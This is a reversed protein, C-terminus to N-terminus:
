PEARIHGQEEATAQFNTNCDVMKWGDVMSWGNTPNDFGYVYPLPVVSTFNVPAWNSSGSDYNAKVQFNYETNPTLGSLDAYLKTTHFEDSWSGESAKKYQYSYDTIAEVMDPAVWTLTAKQEVQKSVSINSPTPYHCAKFNFDKVRLTTWSFLVKIAIYKVGGPFDKQYQEWYTRPYRSVSITDDEWNFANIDNTTYSYGVVFKGTYTYEQLTPYSAVNLNYLFSCSIADHGDFEPSILYQPNNKQADAFYFADYLDYPCDVTRWGQADVNDTTTNTFSFGYDLRQGTFHTAYYTKGDALVVPEDWEGDVNTTSLPFGKARPMINSSSLGSSPSVTNLYFARVINGTVGVMAGCVPGMIYACLVTGFSDLWLPLSLRTCLLAGGVNMLVCLAAFLGIQWSKWHKM